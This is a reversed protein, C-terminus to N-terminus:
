KEETLSKHAAADLPDLRWGGGGDFQLMHTHFRRPPACPLHQGESRGRVGEWTGGTGRLM